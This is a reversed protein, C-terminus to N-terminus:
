ENWKGICNSIKEYGLPIHEKKPIESVLDVKVIEKLKLIMGAMAADIPKYVVQRRNKLGLTQIIDRTQKPLGIYSRMLTIQYMLPQSSAKIQPSPSTCPKQNLDQISPSKIKLDLPKGIRPQRLVSSQRFM